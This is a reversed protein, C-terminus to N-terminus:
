GIWVMAPVQLCRKTSMFCVVDFGKQFPVLEKAPHTNLNRKQYGASYRGVDFANAWLPVSEKYAGAWREWAWHTTHTNDEAIPGVTLKHPAVWQSLLLRPQGDGTVLHTRRYQSDTANLQTTPWSLGMSIGMSRKQIVKQRQLEAMPTFPQWCMFEALGEGGHHVM